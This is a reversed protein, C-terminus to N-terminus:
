GPKSKGHNEAAKRSSHGSLLRCCPVVAEKWIRINEYNMIVRDVEFTYLKM